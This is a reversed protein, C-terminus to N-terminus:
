GGGLLSRVLREDQDTLSEVFRALVAARDPRGDMAQYMRRAVLGPEDSVPMYRYARGSKSRVLLGKGHMRTLITVVTTYALDGDLRQRVAAPTLPEAARQLVTMIESELAGAARRARTM